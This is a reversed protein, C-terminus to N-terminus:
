WGSVVGVGEGEGGDGYGYGYGYGWWPAAARAMAPSVLTAHDGVMGAEHGALHAAAMAESGDPKEEAVPTAGDSNRLM